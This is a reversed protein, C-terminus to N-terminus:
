SIGPFARGNGADLDLEDLLKGIVPAQLRWRGIGRRNIPQRVQAASATRVPRKAEHFALCDPDWALGCHDIIRRSQGEFDNVVDEYQM